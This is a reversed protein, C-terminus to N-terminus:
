TAISGGAGAAVAAGPGAADADMDAADAGAVGVGVAAWGDAVAGHEASGEGFRRAAADTTAAAFEAFTATAGISGGTMVDLWVRGAHEWAFGGIARAALAFARNPIGSNLHVGGHDDVTDIYDRMHAPQPDRGLVDDDYATGPGLMSRLARGEVEATFLGEGILWSAEQATHGAAHQEVLAGVVDSVHENLAGPQGEYVLPTTHATVGHALEHGIVALSATFRGFVEGDGDGFVMREGDWFANDYEHGYHVTAELPMGAGDISRRGFAELLLAYTAGLGDYAEDAAPDGTAAGGEARVLRGPLATSGGADSVRRDPGPRETTARVSPPAPPMALHGHGVDLSRRAALSAREFRPDDLEALRALLYPPVIGRRGAATPPHPLASNPTM